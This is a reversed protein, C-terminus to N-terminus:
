SKQSAVRRNLRNMAIQVGEKVVVRVAEACRDLLEEVTERDAKRFRSLIYGSLDVVPHDPRVGMRIRTFSDAQLVGIVSKLGNHTGASGRSRIRLSGLPLDVDDVLVILDNVPIAYKEVLGAVSLGSLNMYTQPKALLVEIGEIEARATLAQAEPRSVEVGCSEAVRDVAMFGLNHPTLHYEDGPNGLGVILKM